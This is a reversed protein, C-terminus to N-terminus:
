SLGMKRLLEHYRPDDRYRRLLPWHRFIPELFLLHNDHEAYAKELMEFGRDVDGLVLRLRGIDFPSHRGAQEPQTIEELIEQAAERNGALAHSVGLAARDWAGGQVAMELARETEGRDLYFASLTNKAMPFNPDIELAQRLKQEVVDQPGSGFLIVWALHTLATPDLPNLEAAREAHSRAEDFRCQFALPWGLLTQADAHNPNLELARELSSEATRFDWEFGLSVVGKGVHAEPLNPNLELAREAAAKAKPAVAAAQKGTLFGIMAAKGYCTALGAHSPSYDPDSEIAKEFYEIALKTAEPSWKNMYYIGRLYLHYTTISRPQEAGASFQSLGIGSFRARIAHAINQSVDTQIAFIDKMERDYTEAWVQSGDEVEVLGTIIRVRSSFHQVSGELLFGVGLERGIEPLSRESGKFRMASTRSIVKLGPIKSIRANLEDTMGEVFYDFEEERSRNTFPLVAISPILGPGTRPRPTIPGSRAGSRRAKLARAVEGASAYREGPAKSLMKAITEELGEPCGEVFQSLPPPDERLIATATEVYTKRLFPHRGALMEYLIIGLTFVDSYADARAGQIQEPSMYTMTGIMAGSATLGPGSLTPSESSPVIRALGFDVIKVHGDATLMVNSPKLDRHVVGGTHAQALGDIIELGIRLAEDIPMRGRRLREYLDQGEIYEMAIFLDGAIEGAEYIKCIYPHDIAAAAKAERLLRKRAAVDHRSAKTLFKLVVKRGLVLDEALFVDGMGGGGLKKLTRYRDSNEPV